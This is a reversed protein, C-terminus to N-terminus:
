ARVICTNISEFDEDSINLLPDLVVSLLIIISMCAAFCSYQLCSIEFIPKTQELFLM